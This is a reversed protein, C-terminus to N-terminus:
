YVIVVANNGGVCRVSPVTAGYSLHAIFGPGCQMNYYMDTVPSYATIVQDGQSLYNYRVNEAFACSTVPTAIGAHGSPCALFLEDAHAPATTTLATAALGITLAATATLNKANM